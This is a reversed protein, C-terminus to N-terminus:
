VHQRFNMEGVMGILTKKSDRRDRLLDVILSKYNKKELANVMIKIYTGRPESQLVEPLCFFHRNNYESDLMFGPM